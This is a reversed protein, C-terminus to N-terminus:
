GQIANSDTAIAVLHHRSLLTPSSRDGSSVGSNNSSSAVVEHPSTATSLSFSPSNTDTTSLLPLLSAQDNNTGNDTNNDDLKALETQKPKGNKSRKTLFEQRVKIGLAMFVLALGFISGTALPHDFSYVSLLISFLQRSTMFTAFVVAGFNQITRYIFIQGMASCSSMIITHALCTPHAMMFWWAQFLQNHLILMGMSLIASYSNIGMMMSTQSVKYKQFIDQQWTSTFSDSIIYGMLLAIGVWFYGEPKGKETDTPESIRYITLGIGIMSANIYDSTPFTRGSVVKGMLMTFLIKSSKSLVQLPFSVFKLAEYQFWSSMVNSMSAFSYVYPPATSAVEKKSWNLFFALIVAAVRNLFVLFESNDFKDGSGYDVTMIREQFYGWSVYSVQIGIFCFLLNLGDTLGNSSAAPEDKPTSRSMSMAATPTQQSTARPTQHLPLIPSKPSVPVAGNCLWGVTSNSHLWTYFGGVPQCPPQIPQRYLWALAGFVSAIVVYSSVHVLIHTISDEISEHADADLLDRTTM